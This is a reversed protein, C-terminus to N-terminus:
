GLYALKEEIQRRFYLRMVLLPGGMVATTTLIDSISHYKQYLMVLCYSVFIIALAKYIRLGVSIAVCMAITFATHTSYDMGFSPWINLQNDLYQFGYVLLLGGVLFVSIDRANSYKRKVLKWVILATAALFLAPAVADCIADVIEYQTM